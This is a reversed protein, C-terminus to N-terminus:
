LYFSILSHPDNSSQIQPQANTVTHKKSTRPNRTPSAPQSAPSHSTSTPKLRRHPHPLTSLTTDMEIPQTANKNSTMTAILATCANRIEVSNRPKWVTEIQQVISKSMRLPEVQGCTNYRRCPFKVFVIEGAGREVLLVGRRSRHRRRRKDQHSQRPRQPSLRHPGM